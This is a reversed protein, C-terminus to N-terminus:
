KKVKFWMNLYAEFFGSTLNKEKFYRTVIIAKIAKKNYHHKHEKMEERSILGMKAMFHLIRDSWPSPTTLIFVGDKKLVRSIEKLVFELDERSIHEFVALMIVANFYNNNYPLKQKTVDIKLLKLSDNKLNSLNVSLDVGHKKNFDTSMLFYPTTGCGIDLIRGKRLNESILSNAKEARKKALFKELLGYGRTPTDNKFLFKM